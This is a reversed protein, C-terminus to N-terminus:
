KENLSEGWWRDPKAVPKAEDDSKRPPSAPGNKPDVEPADDPPTAPAPLRALIRDDRLIGRAERAVEKIYKKDEESLAM